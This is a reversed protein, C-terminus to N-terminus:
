ITKSVGKAIVLGSEEQTKVIKTIDDMEENSIILTTRKALDLPHMRLGLIQKHTEADAASAAATFGLTIPVSKALSKLVNKMLPLGTKLLPGLLRGIRRVVM